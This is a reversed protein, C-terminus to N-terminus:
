KQETLLVVCFNPGINVFHREVYFLLVTLWCALRSPIKHHLQPSQLATLIPVHPM